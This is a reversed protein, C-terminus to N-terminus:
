TIDGYNDEKSLYDELCKEPSKMKKFGYFYHFETHCNRCLCVCKDFEKEISKYSKCSGSISFSKENPNIHHFEIVWPRNEGCKICPTKHDNVFDQRKKKSKAQRSRHREVDSAYREKCCQKCSSRYGSKLSSDKYFESIPKIKGCLSCKKEDTPM